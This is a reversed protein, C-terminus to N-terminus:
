KHTNILIRPMQRTQLYNKLKKLWTLQLMFLAANTTQDHVWTLKTIDLLRSLADAIVHTHGRKYIIIFEYELFMPLWRAIHSSVHPKNVIYVLPMHDVYFAFKNGMLHHRYKHLAFVM